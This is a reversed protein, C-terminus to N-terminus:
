QSEGKLTKLQTSIGALRDNVQRLTARRSLIVLSVTCLAAFFMSVVSGIFTAITGQKVIQLMRLSSESQEVTTNTANRGVETQHEVVQALMPLITAWPLMVVLMWAVVCTAGLFCMWRRDRRLVRDTLIQPDIPGEGALLKKGIDRENM